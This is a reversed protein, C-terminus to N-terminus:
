PYERWEATRADTDMVDLLVYHGPRSRAAISPPWTTYWDDSLAEAHDHVTYGNMSGGRLRVPLAAPDDKVARESRLRVQRMFESESVVVHYSQAVEGMGVPVRPARLALPAARRVIVADAPGSAWRDCGHALTRAHEGVGLGVRPELGVDRRHAIGESSEQRDGLVKSDRASRPGVGVGSRHRIKGLFCLESAALRPAVLRDLHGLRM